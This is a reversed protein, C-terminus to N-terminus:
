FKANFALLFAMDAAGNFQDAASVYTNFIGVSFNSTTYSIGLRTDFYSTYNNIMSYGLTANLQYVSMFPFDHNFAFWSRPSRTGEFNDEYSYLVHYTFLDQDLSVLIKDRQGSPSYRYFDNRIKLSSNPTFLFKYEGLLRIEMTADDNIYKVSTADVGIRGQAGFWYGLGATFSLNKNSQTIGKDVYNSALGVEGYMKSMAQAWSLSSGLLLSFLLLCSLINIM